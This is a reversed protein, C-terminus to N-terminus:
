SEYEPKTTVLDNLLRARAKVRQHDVQLLDRFSIMGLLKGEDVVPLHRCNLTKMKELCETTSEHPGATELERTMVTAVETDAPSLDQAVVRTMVDRETFIGLLQDAEVVAVAGINKEAMRRAADRVSATPSIHVLPKGQIIEAIEMM